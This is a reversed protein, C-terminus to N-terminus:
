MRKPSRFECSSSSWLLLLLSSSSSSLLLSSSSSSSLLVVVVVFVVVFVVVVGGGGVVVVSRTQISFTILNSRRNAMTVVGSPHFPMRSKLASPRRLPHKLPLPKRRELFVSM